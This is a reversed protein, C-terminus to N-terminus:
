AKPTLVADPHPLGSLHMVENWTAQAATKRDDYVRSTASFKVHARVGRRALLKILHPLFTMTGWYCVEDPVSGEPMSYSLYSATIPLQVQVAPEFLSPRFPLVTEGNTSTGEPYLVVVAGDEMAKAILINARGADKRRERDVFISGAMLSLQGYIPWSRVEKKAVFSCPAVAACVMIDLYSLHNSILLGRPPFEGEVDIAIDMRRLCIACWRHLWRTREVRSVKGGRRLYIWAFHAACQLSTFLVKSLRGYSRFFSRLSNTTSRM